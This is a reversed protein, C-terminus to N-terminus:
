TVPAKARLVAMFERMWSPHDPWARASVMLGDVVAAGDVFEAGAQRVDPELAPYAATRRGELLGAATLALVGHCLHAVPKQETMFHRLIRQCDPNNRIYEPARGGPVVVAAYEAPDVDAFALDAPWTHGPKETYTDFGDVFDHVVFQLRKRTPAAVDVEYGEELLRQYPYMVELVEAADGTLILVKPM